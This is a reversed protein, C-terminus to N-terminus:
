KTKQGSLGPKKIIGSGKPSTVLTKEKLVNLHNLHFVQSKKKLIKIM